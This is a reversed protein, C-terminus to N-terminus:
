RHGGAPDGGSEHTVSGRCASERRSSIRELLHQEPTPQDIVREMPMGGTPNEIDHFSMPAGGWEENPREATYPKRASGAQKWGDFRM